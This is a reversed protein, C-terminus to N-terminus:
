EAAATSTCHRAAPAVQNISAFLREAIAVFAQAARPAPPPRCWPSGTTAPRRVAADIPFQGLLPAQGDRGSERRRRQWLNRPAEHLRRVRFLERKRGGLVPIGVKTAM